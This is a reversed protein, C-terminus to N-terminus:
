LESHLQGILMRAHIGEAFIFDFINEYGDRFKHACTHTCPHTHALKDHTVIVASENQGVMHMYVIGPQEIKSLIFLSMSCIKVSKFLAKEQRSHSFGSIFPRSKHQGREAYISYCYRLQKEISQFFGRFVLDIKKEIRHINSSKIKFWKLILLMKM